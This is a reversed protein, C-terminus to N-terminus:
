RTANPIITAHRAAPKQAVRESGRYPMAAGRSWEVLFSHRNADCFFEFIGHRLRAYVCLGPRPRSEFFNDHAARLAHGAKSAKEGL